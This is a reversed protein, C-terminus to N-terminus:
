GNKEGRDEGFLEYYWDDTTAMRIMTYVVLFCISGLLVVGIVGKIM